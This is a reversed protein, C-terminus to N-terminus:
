HEALHPFPTWVLFTKQVENPGLPSVKTSSLLHLGEVFYSAILFQVDSFSVQSPSHNPPGKPFTQVVM